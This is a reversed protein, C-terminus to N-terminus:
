FQISDLHQEHFFIDRAWHMLKSPNNMKVVQEVAVGTATVGEGCGVAVSTLGSGVDDDGLLEIM